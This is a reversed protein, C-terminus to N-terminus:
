RISLKQREKEWYDTQRCLLKKAQEPHKMLAKVIIELFITNQSGKILIADGSNVLRQLYDVAQFANDFCKTTAKLKSSLFPFSFKKTLPGIFIIHDASKEAQHALREHEGQAQNGLERMDGLVAIRRGKMRSLLDLAGLTASPSSNYSSDIITSGKIGEIVSMRGKPLQFNNELQQISDQIPISFYKGILIASAIGAFFDKIHLQHSFSLQYEQKQDSFFYKVGQISVEFKELYLNSESGAVSFTQLKASISKSIDFKVIDDVSSIALGEKPLASLLKAKEKAISEVPNEGVFNQAHVANVNLLVGVVPHIFSLLYEMNKPANQSDIGMELILIDYKKWDFIVRQLALLSILIWDLLSFNGVDINLLELPIGTESNGKKTWKVRYKKQLVCAIAAVTSTKGASGTVGVIIPRVKVLQLSACFRLWYILISSFINKM